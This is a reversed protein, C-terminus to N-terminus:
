KISQRWVLFSRLIVKYLSSMTSSPDKLCIYINNNYSKCSKCIRKCNFKLYWYSVLPLFHYYYFIMTKDSHWDLWDFMKMIIIFSLLTRCPIKRFRAPTCHTYKTYVPCTTVWLCRNTMCAIIAIGSKFEHLHDSSHQYAISSIDETLM